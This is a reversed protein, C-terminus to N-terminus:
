GMVMETSMHTGECPDSLPLLHYIAFRYAQGADVVFPSFPYAMNGTTAVEGAYYAHQLHSRTYGCVSMAVDRTDAVAEILLGVEHPVRDMLPEHEGMVANKGYVRIFLQFQGRIDAFRKNVEQYAGGLVNDLESILIPDRIGTMVIARHGIPASGEIKVKYV